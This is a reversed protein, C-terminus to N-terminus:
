ICVYSRTWLNLSCGRECNPSLGHVAPVAGVHPAPRCVLLAVTARGDVPRRPGLSYSLSHPDDGVTGKRGSAAVSASQGVIETTMSSTTSQPPVTPGTPGLTGTRKKERLRYSDGRINVVTSNHLIRDLIATALVADGFIGGWESFSKNSTLVLSSREYRASVLRFFLTPVPSSGSEGAALTGTGYM